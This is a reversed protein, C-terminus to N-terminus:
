TGPSAPDAEMGTATRWGEPARVTVRVPDARREPVYMFVTAPSLFAHTDDVHRTRDGISNAYVRYAVSVETAGLTTIRWTSKDVKKVPLVQGSRTSARVNSVTGAADILAYRGPRWVPLAVELTPGRVGPVVMTMEVNQTQPAVLDVTYEIAKAPMARTTPAPDASRDAPREPQACAPALCNALAVLLCVGPPARGEAM